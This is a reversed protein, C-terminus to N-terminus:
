DGNRAIRELHARLEKHGSRYSERTKKILRHLKARDIKGEEYANEFMAIANDMQERTRGITM